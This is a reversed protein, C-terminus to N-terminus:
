AEPKKGYIAYAPWYAHISTDRFEKRLEILFAQVEERKWGLGRTLPAMTWGEIGSMCNEHAWWGLTKYYKDKPWTNTPWKIKKIQVDVFGVETMVDVLAPIDQFSRNLVTAAEGLVAFCRVIAADPKLTGDDSQPMLDMDQVELYGGPTLNDYSRQIFQRWDSISSTMMRSHIYDFPEKYLWPEEIDDIEFTVNPPVRCSTLFGKEEVAVLEILLNCETRPHSLDIGLVEAEPHLEGFEIAWIGTGTGVDLVRKVESNEENPPALGLKGNLSLLFQNHQLDLRSKEREDNPYSYKGDKYAHYTRGNEIRFNLISDAISTKSSSLSQANLNRKYALNSSESVRKNASVGALDYAREDVQKEDIAIQDEEAVQTAPDQAVISM